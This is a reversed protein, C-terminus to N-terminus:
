IYDYEKPPVVIDDKTIVTYFCNYMECTKLILNNDVEIIHMEPYGDDELMLAFRIADDEEQFLYLIKEGDSNVVAYAGDDEKGAVTLIFM